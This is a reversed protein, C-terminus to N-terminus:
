IKDHLKLYIGLFAEDFSPSIMQSKVLLKEPSSKITGLCIHLILSLIPFCKTTPLIELDVALM